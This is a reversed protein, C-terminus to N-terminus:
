LKFNVIYDKMSGPVWIGKVKELAQFYSKDNLLKQNLQDVANLDNVDFQWYMRMPGFMELGTKIDVGYTKNLTGVLETSFNRAAPYDAANNITAVRTFRFM